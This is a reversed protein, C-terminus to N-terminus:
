LPAYEIIKTLFHNYDELLYVSIIMEKDRDTLLLVTMEHSLIPSHKQSLNSHFAFCSSESQCSQTLSCGPISAYYRRLTQKKSQCVLESLNSNEAYPSEELTCFWSRRLSILLSSATLSSTSSHVRLCSFYSQSM